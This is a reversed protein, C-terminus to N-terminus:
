KGVIGYIMQSCLVDFHMIVVDALTSSIALNGQVEDAHIIHSSVYQSLQKSLDFMVLEAKHKPHLKKLLGHRWVDSQTPSNYNSM